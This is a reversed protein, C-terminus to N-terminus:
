RLRVWRLDQLIGPNDFNHEGAWQAVQRVPILPNLCSVLIRLANDPLYVGPNDYEYVTVESHKGRWIVVM